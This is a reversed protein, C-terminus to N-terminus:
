VATQPRIVSATPIHKKDSDGPGVELSFPPDEAEAMNGSVAGCFVAVEKQQDRISVQSGM